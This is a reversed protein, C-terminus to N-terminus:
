RDRAPMIATRMRHGVHRVNPNLSLPTDQHHMDRQNVGAQEPEQEQQEGEPHDLAAGLEPHHYPPSAGLHQGRDAGVAVKGLVHGEGQQQHGQAFQRPRPARAAGPRHAAAPPACGAHWRCGSGWPEWCAAGRRCGRRRATAPSKRPAPGPAPARPLSFTMRLVVGGRPPKQPLWTM